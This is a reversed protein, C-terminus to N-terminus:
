LDDYTIIEINQERCFEKISDSCVMEVEFPRPLTLSSHKLIYADLYGPHCIYMCYGDSYNKLCAEKFAKYPDYDPRSAELVPYLKTNKFLVPGNFCAPLYDCQYKECITELAKFFNESQVAHCEFYHPKQNTLSVFKLYQAEVEICAQRYDVFDYGEQFAKRYEKSSRFNGNKDVLSPILEPNSLPKGASINTHLGLCCNTDKILNYGHETNEMNVMIGISRILGEKVSKEIGFNIGKSFGLDDARLIIKKM